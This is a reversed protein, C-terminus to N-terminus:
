QLSGFPLRRRIQALADEPLDFQAQKVALVQANGGSDDSEAVLPRAVFAVVAGTSADFAAGSIEGRDNVDNAFLLQLTPSPAILLANLDYIKTGLWIVARFHRHPDRSLGVILGSNNIGLAESRVDGPLTGLDTPGRSKSWSFGHYNPKAASDGPLDSFGVVVGRDNIATPTNWAVGGLDGIQAVAGDQWLVAHRASLGGVADACDGSIGVIQGRNNVATAASDHDQPLPPLARPRDLEDLRWDVALFQLIQPLNCTSDAVPTEAWGVVDGRANAGAAYGHHGGLTPLGRMVHDKWVFGRCTNGTPTAVPFFYFCSWNEQLPDIEATEAIGVIVGHVNHNPWQVGSNAGGLTGLDTLPARGAWLVAHQSGDGPFDSAGTVWGRDNISNAASSTGGLSGLIELSYHPPRAQDAQQALTAVPYILGVIATLAVAMSIPRYKSAMNIEGKIFHPAASYM